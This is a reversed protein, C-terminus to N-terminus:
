QQRSWQHFQVLRWVSQEAIYSKLDPIFSHAPGIISQVSVFFQIKWNTPCFSTLITASGWHHYHELTLIGLNRGDELDLSMGPNEYFDM